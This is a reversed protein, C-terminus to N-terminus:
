NAEEDISVEDEVLPIIEGEVVNSEKLKPMDMGARSILEFATEPYALAVHEAKLRGDRLAVVIEDKWGVEVKIAAYIGLIKCRQDICWQVGRLCEAVSKRERRTTRRTHVRESDSSASEEDIVTEFGVGMIRDHEDWYARELADIKKLEVAKAEEITGALKKEWKKMARKVDAAVTQRKLLYRGTNKDNVRGTIENYSYGRLYLKTAVSVDDVIDAPSRGWKDLGDSIM